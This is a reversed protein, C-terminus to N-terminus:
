TLGRFICYVQKLFFILWIRGWWNVDPLPLRPLFLILRFFCFCLRLCSALLFLYLQLNYLLIWVLFLFRDSRLHLRLSDAFRSWAVIYETHVLWRLYFCVKESCSEIRIRDKSLVLWALAILKLLIDDLLFLILNLLVIRGFRLRLVFGESQTSRWCRVVRQKSRWFVCSYKRCVICDRKQKPWFFFFGCPGFWISWLVM